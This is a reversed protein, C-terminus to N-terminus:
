GPRGRSAFMTNYTRLDADSISSAPVLQFHEERVKRVNHNGVVTAEVLAITFSQGFGAIEEIEVTKAAVTRAVMGPFKEKCAYHDTVIQVVGIREHSGKAQIPIVMQAGTADVGVYVEDLETQAKHFHAVTTRMHSQLQFSAIGMFIDVLRCYRIRALVAQEDRKAYRAVIQPTSDPIKIPQRAPDPDIFAREALVFSYSSKGNPLLIWAKGNPALARIEEPLDERGHRVSYINDGLNSPVEISLDRAIASLDKRDWDFGEQGTKWKRSFLERMIRIYRTDAKPIGEGAQGPVHVPTKKAM